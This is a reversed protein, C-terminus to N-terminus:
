KTSVNTRLTQAKAKASGEAIGDSMNQFHSTTPIKPGSFTVVKNKEKGPGLTMSDAMKQFLSGEKSGECKGCSAFAPVAFAVVVAVVLVLLAIKRM